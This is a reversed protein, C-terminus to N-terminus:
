SELLLKKATRTQKKESRKAKLLFIKKETFYKEHPESLSLSIDPASLNLAKWAKSALFWSLFTAELCNEVPLLNHILCGIDAKAFFSLLHKSSRWLIYPPHPTNQRCFSVSIVPFFITRSGVYVHMYIYVLSEVEIHVNYM